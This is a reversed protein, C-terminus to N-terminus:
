VEDKQDAIMNEIIEIRCCPDLTYAAYLMSFEKLKKIYKVHKTRGKKFAERILNDM